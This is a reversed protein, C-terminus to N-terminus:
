SRKLICFLHYNGARDNRDDYKMRNRMSYLSSLMTTPLMKKFSSFIVNAIKRKRIIKNLLATVRPQGLTELHVIEFGNKNALYLISNTTFYQMHELDVRFTTPQEEKICASGNPTWLLLFGGPKLYKSVKEILKVPELPHEILDNMSIIDFQIDKPLDSVSGFYVNELGMTKCFSVASPDLETGYPYCGMKKLLYLFQGRGFGVDLVSKDKLDVLSSLKAIRIDDYPLLLEYSRLAEMPKLPTAARHENEYTEYFKALQAESPSPSVYYTKCRECENVILSDPRVYVPVGAEGDCVPCKRFIVDVKNWSPIRIDLPDLRRPSVEVKSSGSLIM